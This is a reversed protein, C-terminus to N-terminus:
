HLFITDPVEDYAQSLVMSPNMSTTIERHAMFHWFQVLILGISVADAQNHGLKVVNHSCM